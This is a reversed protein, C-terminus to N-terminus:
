EDEEQESSTDWLDKHPQNQGVRSKKYAKKTPQRSAEAPQAPQLGRKMQKVDAESFERHKCRRLTVEDDEDKDEAEIYYRDHEKTIHELLKKKGLPGHSDRAVGCQCCKM